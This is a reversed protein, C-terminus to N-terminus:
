LGLQLTLLAGLKSQELARPGFYEPLDSSEKILYAKM